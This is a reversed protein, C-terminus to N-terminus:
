PAACRDPIPLSDAPLESTLAEIEDLYTAVLPDTRLEDHVPAFAAEIEALSDPTAVALRAGAACVRSALVTEDPLLDVAVEATEAAADLIALQQPRTLSDLTTTNAILVSVSPWLNLNTTHHKTPWEITHDLFALTNEYARIAGAEIQANREPASTDVHTAGLAEVAMGNIEGHFTYFPIGAFDELTTLPSEAATPRRLPGAIVALGTIGHPELGDLMRTPIDTALVTAQATMSRIAMPAILADFDRIALERFARAGVVGLDLDGSMVAEVIDQEISLIQSSFDPHIGITLSGDARESVEGQFHGIQEDALGLPFAIQLSVPGTTTTTGTPTDPTATSCGVASLGLLAVGLAATRRTRAMDRVYSRATALDDHSAVCM